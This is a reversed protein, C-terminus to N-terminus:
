FISPSSFITKCTGSLKIKLIKSDANMTQRYNSVLPTFASLTLFSQPGVKFHSAKSIGIHNVNFLEKFITGEQFQMVRLSKMHSVVLVYVIGKVEVTDIQFPDLMPFSLVDLFKMTERSLKRLSLYGDRLNKGLSAKFHAILLFVNGDAEFKVIDKIGYQYIKQSLVLRDGLVSYLLSCQEDRTSTEDYNVAVAICREKGVTFTRIAKVNFSQTTSALTLASGNWMWIELTAETKPYPRQERAMVVRVGNGDNYALADIIDNADLTQHSEFILTASNWKFVVSPGIVCSCSM